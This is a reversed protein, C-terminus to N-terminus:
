QETILILIIFVYRSSEKLINAMVNMPKLLQHHSNQQLLPVSLNWLVVCIYQILDFDQIKKLATLLNAVRSLAKLRVDVTNNNYVKEAQDHGRISLQYTVSEKMLTLRPDSIKATGVAVLCEQALGTLHYEVCLMGLEILLPVRTDDPDTLIPPSLGGVGTIIMLVKRLKQDLEM